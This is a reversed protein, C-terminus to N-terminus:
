WSQARAVWFKWESCDNRPSISDCREGWLLQSQASRRDVPDNRSTVPTTWNPQLSCRMLWLGDGAWRNCRNPYPCTRHRSNRHAKVKQEHQMFEWASMSSVLRCPTEQGTGVVVCDLDVLDFGVTSDAFSDKCETLGYYNRM